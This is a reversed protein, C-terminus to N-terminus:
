LNRLCEPAMQYYTEAVPCRGRKLYRINTPLLSSKIKEVWGDVKEIEGDYKPSVGYGHLAAYLRLIYAILDAIQILGAHSSDAFFPVDIIQDLRDQKPGKKYYSDSWAPPFIILEPFSTEGKGKDFVFVTNGKNNSLTQYKKQISLAVHFSAAHWVNDLSACIECSDKLEDFIRRDISSFTVHHKRDDFWDLIREITASRQEPSVSRWPGNGRYIDKAHLETVPKGVLSTCQALLEDWERKTRRMRVADVVVGVVIVVTDQGTGTEDLYCFKM